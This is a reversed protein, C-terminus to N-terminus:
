KKEDRISHEIKLGLNETTATQQVHTEKAV